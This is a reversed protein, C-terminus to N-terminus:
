NDDPDEGLVRFELPTYTNDEIVSVQRCFQKVESIFKDLSELNEMDESSISITKKFMLEVSVDCKNNDLNGSIIESSNNDSIINIDKNM